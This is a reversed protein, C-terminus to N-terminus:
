ASRLLMFGHKMAQRIGRPDFVGCSTANCSQYGAALQPTNSEHKKM